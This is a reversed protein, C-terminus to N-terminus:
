LPFHENDATMRESRKHREAQANGKVRSRCWVPIHTLEHKMKEIESPECLAPIMRARAEAPIRDDEITDEVIPEVVAEGVWCM